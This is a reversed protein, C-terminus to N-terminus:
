VALGYAALRAQLMKASLDHRDQALFDSAIKAFEPKGIKRLIFLELLAVTARTM